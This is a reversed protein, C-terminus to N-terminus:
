LEVAMLATYNEVRNSGKFSAGRDMLLSKRDRKGKAVPVFVRNETETSKGLTSM